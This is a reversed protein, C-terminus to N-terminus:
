HRDFFSAFFFFFKCGDIEEKVARDITCKMAEEPTQTQIQKCVDGNCRADLAKQLANGKWGFM